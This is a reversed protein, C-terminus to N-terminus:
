KAKKKAPAKRTTAVAKTPRAGAVKGATAAGAVSKTALTNLERMSLARERPKLYTVIEWEGALAKSDTALEKPFNGRMALASKFNMEAGLVDSASLNLKYMQNMMQLADFVEGMAM